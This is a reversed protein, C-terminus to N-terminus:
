LRANKFGLITKLNLFFFIFGICSFIFYLTIFYIGGANWERVLVNLILYTLGIYAYLSASLIFYYSKLTKAYRILGGILIAFLITFGLKLFAHYVILGTLSATLLLNLAFNQYSFVFHAKFSKQESFIAILTFICGLILGAVIFRTQLYELQQMISQPTISIGVTAMWGSLGLQLVGRHDFRYALFVYLTAPFLTALAYHTGFLQYQYQLYGEFVGFLLVGLLLVYGFGVGTHTVMAQTFPQAKKFCYTLCSICSLAILALLTQHGITDIHLYVWIGLGTSLLVIGLYLLFRMEWLISFTQQNYYAKIKEEQEASILGTQLLKNLTFNM